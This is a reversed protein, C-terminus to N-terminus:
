SARVSQFALEAASLDSHETAQRWRRREGDTLSEWHAQIPTLPEAASAMIRADIIARYAALSSALVQTENGYGQGPHWYVPQGRYLGKWISNIPKM